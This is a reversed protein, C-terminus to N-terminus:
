ETRDHIAVPGRTGTLKEVADNFRSDSCYAINGGAMYWDKNSIDPVIKASNEINGKVLLAGPCGKGPKFPGAVNTLCIQDVNASMGDNTCDGLIKNKYVYVTLGM